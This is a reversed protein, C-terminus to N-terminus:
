LKFGPYNDALEHAHAELVAKCRETETPRIVIVASNENMSFAYIYEIFINEVSLIGLLKALSGPKNPSTVLIVQTTQVSFFRSRLVEVARDPDPVIMRLVGFDSSDAISFASINIGEEGLIQTVENLRGSKNELFVSVQKAIM